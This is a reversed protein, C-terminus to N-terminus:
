ASVCSREEILARMAQRDGRADTYRDCLNRGAQYRSSGMGRGDPHWLDYLRGDHRVTGHFTDVACWFATDEFGWGIFREDWGGVNRWTDYSVVVCGGVSNDFVRPTRAEHHPRGGRLAESGRRTLLWAETFPLHLRGDGAAAVAARVPEPEVIADGDCVVLVDAVVGDPLHRALRAGKNRSGSRSFPDHGSDAEIIPTGPLAAQLAARV